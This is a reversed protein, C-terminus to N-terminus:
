IISYSRHESEPTVIVLLHYKRHSNSIPAEYEYSICDNTANASVQKWRIYNSNIYVM